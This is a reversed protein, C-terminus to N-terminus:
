HWSQIMSGAHPHRPLRGSFKSTSRDLYVVLGSPPVTKLRPVVLARFGRREWRRQEVQGNSPHGTVIWVDPDIPGVELSLSWCPRNHEAGQVIAAVSQDDLSLLNQVREAAQMLDFTARPQLEGLVWLAIATKGRSFGKPSGNEWFGLELLAEVVDV